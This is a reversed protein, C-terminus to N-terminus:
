AKTCLPEDADEPLFGDPLFWVAMILTTMCMGVMCYYLYEWSPVAEFVFPALIALIRGAAICIAASTARYRIHFLDLSLQYCSLFGFSQVVNPVNQMVLYSWASVVSDPSLKTTWIFAPLGLIGVVLSAILMSKCTMVGALCLVFINIFLMIVQQMLVEYGPPMMFDNNISFKPFAYSHGYAVANMTATGFILTVMVAFKENAFSAAVGNLLSNSKSRSIVSTLTAPVPRFGSLDVDPKGNLHQMSRLVELASDEQGRSALFVPSEQLLPVAFAAWALPVLSVLASQARWHLDVLNPADVLVPITGVIGGLSFMCMRSAMVFNRMSQPSSESVLALSSAMGLGNAFGVM